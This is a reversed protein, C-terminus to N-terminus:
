RRIGYRKIKHYLTARDIGLAAASRTVNGQLQALVREIHEKEIADLARPREGRQAVQARFFHARLRDAVELPKEAEALPNPWRGDSHLSRM